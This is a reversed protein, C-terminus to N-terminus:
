PNPQTHSDNKVKNIINKVNTIYKETETILQTDTTKRKYLEMMNTMAELGLIAAAVGRVKFAPLEVVKDDDNPNLPETKIRKGRPPKHQERPDAPDAPDAPDNAERERKLTLAAQEDRHMDRRVCACVRVNVMQRGHVTGSLDELTFIVALSRRNIGMPCSNKCVFRYAHSRKDAADDFRVVVSYWSSKDGCYHVGDTDDNRSSHLVNKWKTIFQPTVAHGPERKTLDHNPCTEVRKEAQEHEVFVACARVWLPGAGEWRFHIPFDCGADVYLREVVTSYMYKKKHTDASNIEVQFNYKGPFCSRNPPGCPSIPFEMNSTQLEIVDLTDNNSYNDSFPTAKGGNDGIDISQEYDSPSLEIFDSQGDTWM